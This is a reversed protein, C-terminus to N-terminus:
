LPQLRNNSEDDLARGIANDLRGSKLDSEIHADIPLTHNRDLWAYLEELERNSLTGIAREIEQISM